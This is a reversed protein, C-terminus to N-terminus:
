ATKYMCNHICNYVEILSVLYFYKKINTLCRFKIMDNLNM